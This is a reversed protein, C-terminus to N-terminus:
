AKTVMRSILYGGTASLATLTAGWLIDFITLQLSWNRLTAQNTLDYTAYCFVGFLAGYILAQTWDATRIAAAGPFIVIGGAYVLYFAIAAEFRPKALLMDGLVPKYLRESALKLWIFDIAVCLLLSVVYYVAYLM